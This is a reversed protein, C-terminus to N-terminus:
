RRMLVYPGRDMFWDIYHSRDHGGDPDMYSLNNRDSFRYVIVAHTYRGRTYALFIHSHPLHDELYGVIDTPQFAGFQFGFTAAIRPIKIAPTIGGTAGEGWRTVLAEQHQRPIRPDARSWSELAAAWCSDVHTQRVIPPRIRSISM